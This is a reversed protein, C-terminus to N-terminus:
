AAKHAAPLADILTARAQEWHARLIPRRPPFRELLDIDDYLDRMHGSFSGGLGHGVMPSWFALDHRAKIIAAVCEEEGRIAGTPITSRLYLHVPDFAPGALADRHERWGHLNVHDSLVCRPLEMGHDVGDIFELSSEPLEDPIPAEPGLRHASLTFM